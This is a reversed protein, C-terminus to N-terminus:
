EKWGLGELAARLSAWAPTQRESASTARAFELLRRRLSREDDTLLPEYSLRLFYGSGRGTFALLMDLFVELERAQMEPRGGPMLRVINVDHRWLEERLPDEGVMLATGLRHGGKRRPFVMRVDHMLEHFHDDTLGFGVFLLHRTMLMAKALASLADRGCGYGLYDDRTLVISSPDNVSGHLKLLWRGADVVQEDPLVTLRQGLANCAREYLTDYNLTVAERTPLGALMISALGYHSAETLGAVATNFDGCHQDEYMRRLLLAQDLVSLERFAAVKNKPFNVRELLLAVLEGWLPLGAAKSVGAGLFPVLIGEDALKALRRAEEKLQESLPWQWEDRRIRQAVAFDATDRLVLAVDVEADRAVEEATQM